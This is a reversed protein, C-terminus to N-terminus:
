ELSEIKAATISSSLFVLNVYFTQLWARYVPASYPTSTRDGDEGIVACVADVLGGVEEKILDLNGQHESLKAHCDECMMRARELDLKLVDHEHEYRKLVLALAAVM